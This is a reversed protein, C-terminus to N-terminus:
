SPGRGFYVDYFCREAHSIGRPAEVTGLLSGYADPLMQHLNCLLCVIGVVPGLQTWRNLAPVPVRRAFLLDIAAQCQAVAEGRNKCCPRGDILRCHHEPVTSRWDGTFAHLLTAGIKRRNSDSEKQTALSEETDSWYHRNISYYCCELLTEAKEKLIPHRPLPPPWVLKTEILNHMTHVLADLTTGDHIQKVICFLPCIIDLEKTAPSIVLNSQHQLCRQFHGLTHKPLTGFLDNAWKVNPPGSDQTLLCANYRGATLIGDLQQVRSRVAVDIMDATNRAVVAPPLVLEEILKSGHQGWVWLGHMSIVHYPNVRHGNVGVYCTTEDQLLSLISYSFPAKSAELLLSAICSNQKSTVFEALTDRCPGIQGCSVSPFSRAVARHGDQELPETLRYRSSVRQRPPAAEFGFNALIPWAVLGVPGGVPALSSPRRAHAPWFSSRLSRIAASPGPWM